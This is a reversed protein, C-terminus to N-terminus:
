RFAVRKVQYFTLSTCRTKVMFPLGAEHGTSLCFLIHKGSSLPRETGPAWCLRGRQPDTCEAQFRAAHMRAHKTTDSEKRAWLSYGMLSRQGHFEGPLFGPTPEQKRNWPIKRVWPNFVSDGESAAPNKVVSDDPFGRPERGFFGQMAPSKLSKAQGVSKLLKRLVRVCIM